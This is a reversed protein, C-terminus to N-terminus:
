PTVILEKKWENYIDNSNRIHDDWTSTDSDPFYNLLIRWIIPRLGKYDDPIGGQFILRNLETYANVM